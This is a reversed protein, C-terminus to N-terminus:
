PVPVQSALSPSPTKGRVVGKSGLQLDFCTTVDAKDLHQKSRYEMRVVFAADPKEEKIRKIGRVRVNKQQFARNLSPLPDQSLIASCLQAYYISM